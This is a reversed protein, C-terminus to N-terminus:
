PLAALEDASVSALLDALAAFALPTESEAPSAALVRVGIAEAHTVAERWLTTKGIGAEGELVAGSPGTAIDDVFTQISAWEADRGLLQRPPDGNATM